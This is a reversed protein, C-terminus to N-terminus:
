HMPATWRNMQRDTQKDTALICFFAIKEFLLCNLAITDIPSRYSTTCPSKFFGNYVGLIWSPASEGDQIKVGFHLFTIKEFVLCNLAITEISSRYSIACRSVLSGIILGKFGLIASIRWSSFRCSTM